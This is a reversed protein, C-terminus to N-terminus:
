RRRRLNERNIDLEDNWRNGVLLQLAARVQRETNNKLDSARFLGWMESPRSWPHCVFLMGKIPQLEPDSLIGFKLLKAGFNPKGEFDAFEYINTDLMGFAVTWLMGSVKANATQPDPYRPRLNERGGPMVQLLSLDVVLFTNPRSYQGLKINSRIKELMTDIAFHIQGSHNPTMEGYPAVVQTTVAVRRGADVQRDIEDTASAADQLTKQIGRKGGGVSLTKVEFHLPQKRGLLEFDPTPTSEEPVKALKIGHAAALAMFHAEGLTQAFDNTAQEDIAFSPTRVLRLLHDVYRALGPIATAENEVTAVAPRLLSLYPNSAIVRADALARSLANSITRRKRAM